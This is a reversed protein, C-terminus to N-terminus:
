NLLELGIKLELYDPEFGYENKIVERKERLLKVEKNKKLYNMIKEFNKLSSIYPEKKLMGEGVLRVIHNEVTEPKIELNEKVLTRWTEGTEKNPGQYHKLVEFSKKQSKNIGPKNKNKKENSTSSSESSMNKNENLLKVIEVGIKKVTQSTMGDLNMLKSLDTPLNLELIHDIVQDPLLLYPPLSYEQSKEQRFVKLKNLLNINRAKATSSLKSHSKQKAMKILEGNPRVWLEGGEDLTFKKEGLVVVQMVGSTRSNFSKKKYLGGIKQYKLYQLDILLEGFARWWSQTHNSGMNYYPNNKYNKNFKQSKSGTLIGVLNTWGLGRYLNKVLDTLLKGEQGVEILNSEKRELYDDVNDNDDLTLNSMVRTKNVTSVPKNVEKEGALLHCNDCKGCKKKLSEEDQPWDHYMQERQFYSDIQLQRCVNTNAWKRILQLLHLHHAEVQSNGMKGILFKHIYFDRNSWYLYCQSPLGDRGARGIEQYYTEVNQPIGWNIIKRINPKDIGMGFAITAVVLYCRDYIFDHHIREREKDSLGAHYAEATKYGEEKLIDRISEAEKRTSVYIICTEPDKEFVKAPKLIEGLNDMLRSEKQRVWIGLNPRVTSAKVIKPDKLALAERMDKIITPTATATLALIPVKPIMDRLGSLNRYSQRFDHGWQSICHAEDVALLGLVNNDFMNNLFSGKTDMFEPTTYVVEYQGTIVENITGYLQRTQGSLTCCRINKSLLSMKQDEMLSLLPSIVVSTKKTYVAPFQYCLSKGLGTPLIACVDTQDVLIADIIERQKGRFNNFGFYEKLTIQYDETTYKLESEEKDKKAPIPTLNLTKPLVKEEVDEEENESDSSVILREKNLSM